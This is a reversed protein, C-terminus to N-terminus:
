ISGRERGRERERKIYVHIEKVTIGHHSGPQAATCGRIADRKRKRAGGSVNVLWRSVYSGSAARKSENSSSV